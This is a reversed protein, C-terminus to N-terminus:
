HRAAGVASQRSAQPHPTRTRAIDLVVSAAREPRALPDLDCEGLLLHVLALPEFAQFDGLEVLATLWRFGVLRDLTLRETLAYEYAEDAPMEVTQQRLREVDHTLAFADLTLPRM